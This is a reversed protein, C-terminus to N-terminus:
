VNFGMSKLMGQDMVCRNDLTKMMDKIKLDGYILEQGLDVIKNDSFCLIMPELINYPNEALVLGKEGNTLEVCSGPALFNISQVLANVVQEDYIEPRDMLYRLATIESKPEEVDNMATMKDYENAVLLVKAGTVIKASSDIEGKKSMELLKRFQQVMRKISPTALFAAEILSEGRIQCALVIKEDEETRVSKDNIEDPIDLKGIDHVVAATVADNQESLKVNLKHTIMATLMAVNLSHKALKDERSRLNQVFNVKKDLRGYGKIISAVLTPLQSTPKGNNKIAKLEDQIIFSSMMQFREFEIDEPTMPPVPEAPELIYLGIIGFNKVSEIGQSTLKSDREYLLVGKKNYIPKALRMGIKLNEQRIFLM